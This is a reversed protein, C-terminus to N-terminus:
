EQQSLTIILGPIHSEKRGLVGVKSTIPESTLKEWFPCEPLTLKSAIKKIKPLLPSSPPMFQPPLNISGKPCPLLPYSAEDPVVLARINHHSVSHVLVKGIESASTWEVVDVEVFLLRLFLFFFHSNLEGSTIGGVEM